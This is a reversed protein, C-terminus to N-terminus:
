DYCVPRDRMQSSAKNSPQGTQNKDASKSTQGGSSKNAAKQVEKGTASPAGVQKLSEVQTDDVKDPVVEIDDEGADSM